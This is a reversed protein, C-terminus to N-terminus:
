VSSIRLKVGSLICEVQPQLSALNVSEPGHGIVVRLPAWAPLGNGTPFATLVVDGPQAQDSLTQFLTVEDVPYFIPQRPTAAAMLGGSLLLLTSPFLLTSLMQFYRFRNNVQEKVQTSRFASLALVIWAVWIGEPLRRQLNLPAYALVPLMLVWAIPFWGIVPKVKSLRIAGWLAFPAVLGYALVYHLPHPSLILNQATWSRLFPDLYFVGMTYIVIPSSILVVWFSRWLYNHWVVWDTSSGGRKKWFQYAGLACLYVFLAIWGIVVTLPQALGLLLWLLGISIGAIDIRWIRRTLFPLSSYFGPWLYIM